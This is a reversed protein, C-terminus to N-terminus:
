RAAEKKRQAKRAPPTLRIPWNPDAVRASRLFANMQEVVAPHQAAVDHKEVPDSRLDYLELPGDAGKRVGKWDGIRAAQDFGREHFEWYLPPHAVAKGAVLAPLISIGDIGSPPSQGTLEAMTPLFDYFAWVQDSVTGPKIHGPWRAIAPTRIGGEYMDRKHGRLPGSHHFLADQYAAGNDSAFFVLTRDDLGLEKLLAMLRGVDGDLRTIMAALKKLNEPWSENAYPGLDPVQLKAHPITFSLDLFFPRDKNRRIFELAEAAMLDHSYTKGDLPVRENNRWLSDPYYEHAKRQCNYGFFDDFGMRDPTSESGPYGLGWKGILGTTYGAQRMLHAVTRTGAPMPLQGEPKIERNGRVPAHGNHLGTMLSCRSPACVTAGAYAQTFRMGEAALRDINPTRILKQGFCGLDGYGLDDALILIVNPDKPEAAASPSPVAGLGVYAALM